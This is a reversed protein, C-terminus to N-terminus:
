HNKQSPMANRIDKLMIPPIIKNISYNNIETINAFYVINNLELPYHFDVFNMNRILRTRDIRFFKKTLEEDNIFINELENNLKHSSFRLRLKQRFMSSLEKKKYHEYALEDFIKIMTWESTELTAYVGNLRRSEDDFGIWDNKCKYRLDHEIEHWGESFITRIQLEFTTDFNKNNNGIGFIRILEDTLEYVINFRTAKFTDKDVRDISLDDVREKFISSIIDRVTNIDDNFYLVIRAGIIDQIKKSKGYEDNSNFKKKISQESKVRSFFRYMIGLSSLKQTIIKTLESEVGTANYNNM